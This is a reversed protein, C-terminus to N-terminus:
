FWRVRQSFIGLHAVGFRQPDDLWPPFNPLQSSRLAATQTDVTTSLKITGRAESRVMADALGFKRGRLSLSLVFLEEMASMRYVCGFISM